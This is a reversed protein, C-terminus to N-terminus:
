SFAYRSSPGFTAINDIGDNYRARSVADVFKLGNASAVKDNHIAATNLIQNNGAPSRRSFNVSTCTGSAARSSKKLINTTSV